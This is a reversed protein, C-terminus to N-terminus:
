FFLFFTVLVCSVVNCSTMATGKPCKLPAVRGHRRGCRVLASTLQGSHRALNGLAGAANARTKENVDRLLAVLPPVSDHLLSYLYVSHFAANGVQVAVGCWVGLLVVPVTDGSPSSWKM